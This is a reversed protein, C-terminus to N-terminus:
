ANSILNQFLQKMHFADAEITPLSDVEVKGKTEKIRSELTDLVDTLVENLDVKELTKKRTGVRSYTLVDNLLGKMKTMSQEIKQLYTAAESDQLKSIPETLESCFFLSKNLPEKLDHSVVTAFQDLETNSRQLEDSLLKLETTQDELRKNQRFIDAFIAVKSKLISNEFPKRMYDVAGTEYGHCEFKQDKSIATLFIIPIHKTDENEKMKQATEFGDMDPMQVDLLIVAVKEKSLIDLAEAGSDALFLTYEPQDLIAQLAILNAKTDDVCLINVPIISEKLSTM